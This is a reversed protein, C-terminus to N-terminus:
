FRYRLIRTGQRSMATSRSMLRTAARLPQPFDAVEPARVLLKEEALTLAAGWTEPEHADDFGQAATIGIAKITPHYKMSWAAFRTYGNLALEGTDFHTTLQRTMRQFTDGPLFPLLGEAVIMAPRDRPLPDLWGPETLDAGIRLSRDPLFQPRLDVIDPFDVDYWDVGAPPDCRLMRTDLGCGLDLVVADPHDAVFARVTDDLKKARLATGCILSPKIKLKAFDYDIADAIEASHTDGLIPHGLKADLARAYLTLLLTERLPDLDLRLRQM